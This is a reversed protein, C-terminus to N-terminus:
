SKKAPIANRIERRSYHKAVKYLTKRVEKDDLDDKPNDLKLSFPNTFNKKWIQEYRATHQLMIDRWNFNLEREYLQKAENMLFVITQKSVEYNERIWDTIEHSTLGEKLKRKIDILAQSKDYKTRPKSM